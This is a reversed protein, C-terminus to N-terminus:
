ETIMVPMILAKASYESNVPHAMIHRNSGYFTLKLNKTADNPSFMAKTLKDVLIPNLGINEVAQIESDPLLVKNYLPYEFGGYSHLLSAPKEGEMTIKFANQYGHHQVIIEDNDFEINYHKLCIRKWQNMHILFRDPMKNIFHEDFLDRTKHIVLVHADTAVVDDKTVLIYNMIPRIQSYDQCVLHLKPLTKFKM